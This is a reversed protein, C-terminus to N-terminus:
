SPSVRSRQRWALKLWPTLHFISMLAYMSVMGTLPSMDHMASCIVDPQGIASVGSILAMIAFTPAAALSLWGAVGLAALGSGSSACGTTPRTGAMIASKRGHAFVGQRGTSRPRMLTDAM